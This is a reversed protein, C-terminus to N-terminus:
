QTFLKQVPTMQTTPTNLIKPTLNFIKRTFYAIKQCDLVSYRTSFESIAGNKCVRIIHFFPATEANGCWVM